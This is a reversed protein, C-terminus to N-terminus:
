PIAMGYLCVATSHTLRLIRRAEDDHIGGIPCGALNETALVLSLNQAMHGAELLLYRYAREGYRAGARGLLGVFLFVAQVTAPDVASTRLLTEGCLGPEDPVNGSVTHPLLRGAQPEFRSIGRETGLVDFAACYVTVARLNGASPYPWHGTAEDPALATRLVREATALDLRARRRRVSRRAKLMDAVAALSPGAGLATQREELEPMTELAPRFPEPFEGYSSLSHFELAGQVYYSDPATAEHDM